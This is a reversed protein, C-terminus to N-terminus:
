SRGKAIESERILCGLCKDKSGEPGGERTALKAMKPIKQGCRDCYREGDKEM